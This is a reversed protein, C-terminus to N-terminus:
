EAYLQIKTDVTMVEVDGTKLTFKQSDGAAVNPLRMTTGLDISRKDDDEKRLDNSGEM